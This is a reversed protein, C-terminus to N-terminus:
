AATLERGTTLSGSGIFYPIVGKTNAPAGCMQLKTYTSFSGNNQYQVVGAKVGWRVAPAGFDRTTWQAVM